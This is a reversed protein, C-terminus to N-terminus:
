QRKQRDVPARLESSGKSIQSRWCSTATKVPRRAGAARQQRQWDAHTLPENGGKDIVALWWRKHGDTDRQCFFQGMTQTFVESIRLGGLYLPAVLWRARWDHTGERQTEHPLRDISVQVQQVPRAGSLAHHTARRTPCAPSIAAAPQRGSLQANVLWSFLVFSSWRRASALPPWRGM